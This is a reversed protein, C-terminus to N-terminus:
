TQKSADNSSGERGDQLSLSIALKMDNEEQKRREYERKSEELVRQLEVDENVASESTPATDQGTAEGTAEGTIEATSEEMGTTQGNAEAMSASLAMAVEMQEQEDADSGNFRTVREYEKDKQEEQYEYDEVRERVVDAAAKNHRSVPKRREEHKFLEGFQFFQVVAGYSVIGAANKEDLWIGSVGPSQIGARAMMRRGPREAVVRSFEGTTVDYLEAAGDRSGVAVVLGNLAMASIPPLEGRALCDEVLRPVFSVLPKLKYERERVNIILIRGTALAVALLLPDKGVITPTQRTFRHPGAELKAGCVRDGAVLPLAYRGGTFSFIELRSSDYLVVNQGGYDVLMRMSASSAPDAQLPRPPFTGVHTVQPQSSFAGDVLFVDGAADLVVVRLKGDSDIRTIQPGDNGGTTACRFEVVCKGARIDWGRITGAVDGTFAGVTGTKGVPGPVVHAATVMAQSGKGPEMKRVGALLINKHNLVSGYVSGDWRGFVIHHDGVDYATTGTPIACTETSAGHGSAVRCGLVQGTTPDYALLRGRAFDPYFNTTPGLEGLTYTRRVARAASWTRSLPDRM